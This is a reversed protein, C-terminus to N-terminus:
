HLWAVISYRIGKTIPAIGHPYMFNSPFFVITGLGLKYRKIENEKQDVFILDGGEYDKNLNIIVSLSRNNFNYNDVHYNYKGGVEYKLLDIQSIQQTEVKPFKVKYFMYSKEIQKNIKDYIIKEKVSDLHKGKVNRINKDLIDEGVSLYKLKSNNCYQIIEDCFQNSIFNDIKVVAELYNM